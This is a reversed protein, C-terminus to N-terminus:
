HRHRLWTVQAFGRVRCNESGPAAILMVCQKFGEVAGVDLRHRSEVQATERTQQMVKTGNRCSGKITARCAAAARDPEYVM